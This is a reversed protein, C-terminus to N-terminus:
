RKWRSGSFSTQKSKLFPPNMRYTQAKSTKMCVFSLYMGYRLILGGRLFLANQNKKFDFYRYVGILKNWDANDAGLSDYWCSTHFKAVGDFSRAEGPLLTPNPTFDHRGQQVTYKTLTPELPEPKTCSSLLYLGGLLAIAAWVRWDKFFEKLFVM